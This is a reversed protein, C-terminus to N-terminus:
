FKLVEWHGNKDSGIRRLMGKEKLKTLNNEVATTSIGISKAISNITVFKDAVILHLIKKENEGLKVGLKEGLGEILQKGTKEVFKDKTSYINALFMDDDTEVTPLNPKLPHKKHEDIIKNWGEGLEEIYEVKALIKAIIPNRSFQIKAINQLTVNKSLGGPNYFEIRNSFMKIIVKTGFNSYDRHCVANTVLERISFWGYEPIDERRVRGEKLQSM